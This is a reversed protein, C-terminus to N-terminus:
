KSLTGVFELTNRYLQFEDNDSAKEMEAVIQSLINDTNVIKKRVLLDIVCRGLVTSVKELNQTESDTLYHISMLGGILSKESKATLGSTTKLAPMRM